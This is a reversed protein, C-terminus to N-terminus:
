GDAREAVAAAFITKFLGNVDALARDQSTAIENLKLKADQFNGAVIKSLSDIIGLNVLSQALFVSYLDAAQQGTLMINQTSSLQELLENVESFQAEAPHRDPM